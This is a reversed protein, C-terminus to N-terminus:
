EILIPVKFGKGTISGSQGLVKFHVQQSRLVITFCEKHIFSQLCPIGFLQRSKAVAGTNFNWQCIQFPFHGKGQRNEPIVIVLGGIIHEVKVVYAYQILAGHCLIQLHGIQCFRRGCQSPTLFESHIFPNYLKFALITNNEIGSGLVRYGQRIQGFSGIINGM